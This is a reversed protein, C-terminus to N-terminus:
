EEEENSRGGSKAAEEFNEIIAKINEETNTDLHITDELGSM